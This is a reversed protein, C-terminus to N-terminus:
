GAIHMRVVGTKKLDDLFADLPASAVCVCADAGGYYVLLVGDKVVAGCTFVVGWKHGNNEYYEEPELIPRASRYLVKTPDHLDLLMAGIRYRDPKNHMMAHYLVLWGDRTKIPPPGVGRFWSDWTRTTDFPRTNNSRIFRTEGDLEDLDDFYDILIKPYFSHIIAFKGNVKESFLVWNKNMEGPPSILRAKRWNWRKHVFDDLDISTLAMRVSSWGDFATFTVYVTGDIVVARPDECGGNTSTGSTYPLRPLDTNRVLPARRYICNKTRETISVGDESLAHGWVSVNDNGDARYIIHVCGECLFATPNYTAKAEWACAPNPVLVPNDPARELTYAIPADQSAVAARQADDMVDEPRPEYTYPHRLLFLEADDGMWYSVFYEEYMGAGFLTAQGFADPAMAYVPTHTRWVVRTPDGYACLAGHIAYTTATTTNASAATEPTALAYLVFVGDEIVQVDLVMFTADQVEHDMATILDRKARVWRAGDSTVYLRLADGGAIMVARGAYLYDSVIKAGGAVDAVTCTKEWDILNRSQAIGLERRQPIHYTMYYVRGDQSMHFEASAEVADAPGTINVIKADDSLPRFLLGDEGVRVRFTDQALNEEDCLFIYSGKAVRASGLGRM